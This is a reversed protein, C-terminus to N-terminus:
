FFKSRVTSFYRLKIKAETESNRPKSIVSAAAEVLNLNVASVPYMSM